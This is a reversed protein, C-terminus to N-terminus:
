AASEAAVLMGGATLKIGNKFSTAGAPSDLGRDARAPEQSGRVNRQLTAQFSNEGFVNFYM